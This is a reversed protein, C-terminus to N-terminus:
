YRKRFHSDGVMEFRSHCCIYKLAIRMLKDHAAHPFAIINIPKSSLVHNLFRDLFRNRVNKVYSIAKEVSWLEMVSRLLVTLM